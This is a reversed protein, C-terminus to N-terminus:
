PERLFALAQAHGAVIGEVVQHVKHIGLGVGGGDGGPELCVGPYQGAAEGQVPFAHAVALASHDDGEAAVLRVARRWPM